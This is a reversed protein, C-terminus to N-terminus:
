QPTDPARRGGWHWPPALLRVPERHRAAAPRREQPSLRDRGHVGGDPVRARPDDRRLDARAVAHRHLERAIRHQLLPHRHLAGGLDRGRVAGRAAGRSARRRPRHRGGQRRPCLRPVGAPLPGGDGRRRRRSSGALRGGRPRGARGRHGQRHRAARGRDGMAYRRGPRRQRRGHQRQRPPSHRRGEVVPAALLGM